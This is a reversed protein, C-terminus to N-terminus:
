DGAFAATLAKIGADGDCAAQLGTVPRKKCPNQIQWVNSRLWLSNFLDSSVTLSLVAVMPVFIRYFQANLACM